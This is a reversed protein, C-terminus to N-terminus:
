TGMTQLSRLAALTLRETWDLRDGQAEFYALDRRQTAAEDMRDTVSHSFQTWLQIAIGNPTTADTSRILDEAANIIAWQAAEEPTYPEGDTDSYPLENYASFAAVRRNWAETLATDGGPVLAAAPMAAAIATLPAAKLLARRTTTTTM